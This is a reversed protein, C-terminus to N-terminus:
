EKRAIARIVFAKGRHHPGEQLEVEKAELLDFTCDKFDSKLDDPDFLMQPNKPGGTGYHIQNKHFAEIWVVGRSKVSQVVKRHLFTRQDPPLHFYILGAADYTQASFEFSDFSKVEYRIEVGRERALERAKQSAEFSSDFADVDWGSAAAYVANRGEGEGPLLIRGPSVTALCDRFFVNPDKGYVYEEVAYRENWFKAMAHLTKFKKECFTRRNKNIQATRKLLYCETYRTEQIILWLSLFINPCHHM